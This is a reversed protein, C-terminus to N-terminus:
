LQQVLECNPIDVNNVVLFAWPVYKCSHITWFKAQKHLTLLPTIQDEERTTSNQTNMSFGNSSSLTGRNYPLNCQSVQVLHVDIVDVDFPLSALTDWVVCHQEKRAM